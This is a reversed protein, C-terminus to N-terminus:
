YAWVFFRNTSLICQSFGDYSMITFCKIKVHLHRTLLFDYDQHLSCSQIIWNTSQDSIENHVKKFEKLILIAYQCVPKSFLIIKLKSTFSSFIDFLPWLFVMNNADLLQHTHSIQVRLTWYKTKYYYVFVYNPCPSNSTSSSAEGLNASRFVSSWSHM